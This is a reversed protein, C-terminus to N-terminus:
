GSRGRTFKECKGDGWNCRKGGRHAKCFETSGQASKGCNEVKCQKRGGHAVPTRGVMFVRQAFGVGMSCAVDVGVMLKACHHVERGRQVRLVGLLSADNEVVMHKASCPAVRPGRPAGLLSAVGEVGMLSAFVLRGKQVRRAGKRFDRVGVMDLAFAQSAGPQKPAGELIGVSCAGVMPLASTPRARQVKPADWSGADEGGEMLRSYPTRSEKGRNCGLKQCQEGGGHDICLGSVRRAGKTCGIFGCRKMNRPRNNVSTVASPGSLTSTTYGANSPESFLNSQECYSKAALDSVTIHPTIQKTEMRPFLLLSPM